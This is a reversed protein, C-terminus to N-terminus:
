ALRRRTEEDVRDGRDLLRGVIRPVPCGSAVWSVALFAGCASGLFCGGFGLAMVLWDHASV